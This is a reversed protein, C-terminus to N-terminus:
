IRVRHEPIVVFNIVEAAEALFGDNIHCAYVHDLHRQLLGVVCSIYLGIM